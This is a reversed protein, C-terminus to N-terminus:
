LHVAIVVAGIVGYRTGLHNRFAEVVVVALAPTMTLWWRRNAMVAVTALGVAELGILNAARGPGGTILLEVIRGAAALLGGLVAPRVWSRPQFAVPGARRALQQGILGGIVGALALFLLWRLVVALPFGGTGAQDQGSLGASSIAVAFDFASD